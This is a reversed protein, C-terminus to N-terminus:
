EITIIMEDSVTTVATFNRFQTNAQSYCWFGYTGSNIKSSSTDTYEFIKYTDTIPYNGSANYNWRWVKIKNGDIAVRYHQWQKRAWTINKNITLKTSNSTLGTNSFQKNNARWLGNYSGGGIGKGSTDHKDLFLLYGSWYNKTTSPNFRIMVGMADDDSDTSTMEFELAMDKYAPIIEKGNEDFERYYYGTFDNTNVTEIITYVGSSNYGATTSGYWNADTATGIKGWTTLASQFATSNSDAKAGFNVKKVLTAESYDGGEEAYITLTVSGITQATMTITQNEKDFVAPAIADNGSVASIVKGEGEYDYKITITKGSTTYNEVELKPYLKNDVEVKQIAERYRQGEKAIVYITTKGVKKGPNIVIKDDVLEATAIESDEYEFEIQGDGDYSYTIEEKIESYATNATNKSITFTPDTKVKTAKLVSSAIVKDSQRIRAIVTIPELTYISNTYTEWTKGEDISYENIYGNPYKISITKDKSWDSNDVTILPFLEQNNVLKIENIELNSSGSYLEIISAKEPITFQTIEKIINTRSIENGNKDYIILKADNAVNATSYIRIRYNTLTSAVKFKRSTSKEIIDSTEVNGDYMKPLVIDEPIVRTFAKQTTLGSQNRVSKALIEGEYLEFSHKYVNWTKGNDISYYHETDDISTDFNITHIHSFKMGELQMIPYEGSSKIIPEKPIYLDLNYIKESTIIQANNKDLGEAYITLSYDNNRLNEVDSSKLSITGSYDTFEGSNGIRYKKILSEGYDIKVKIEDSFDTTLVNIKINMSDNVNKIEIVEIYENGAEDKAYITYKGNETITINGNNTINSGNEEFYSTDKIGKVYRITEINTDDEVSVNVTVTKKETELDGKITIVPPKSDVNDIIKTTKASENGHSDVGKAYVVSNSTIEFPKNYTLWGTDNGEEDIIRYFKEVLDNNYSIAVTQKQVILDEDSIVIKPARISDSGWRMFLNEGINEINPDLIYYHDKIIVDNGNDDKIIIGDSNEIDKANEYKVLLIGKEDYERWEGDTKWKYERENSLTLEPYNLRILYYSGKDLITYRPMLTINEILYSSIAENGVIDENYAYITCNENIVFPGDYNIWNGEDIKYKKVVANKSYEIDVTTQETANTPTHTIIPEDIGKTLFSIQKQNKGEGTESTVYAYITTNEDVIFPKTYKQYEDNNGIKYYATEVDSGYVLSVEVQGIITKINEEPPTVFIEVDLNDLKTSPTSTIIKLKEITTGNKNKAKAYITTSKTIKLVDKYDHYIYGDFSYKLTDYNDAEITVDVEDYLEDLYDNPTANIKIVPTNGNHINQIIQHSTKSKKGDEERIYYAYIISNKELKFPTTYNTWKNGDISYYIAEAKHKPNISIITYKTTGTKPNSTIQPGELIEPPEIIQVYASTYTTKNGYTAKAYITQGAKVNITKSYTTYNLGDISYELKDVKYYTSITAYVSHNKLAENSSLNITLGLNDRAIHQSDYSIQKTKDTNTKVAKAIILTDAKVSFKGSYKTYTKGSDISYEINESPYNTSITIYSKEIGNVETRSPEIYVRLSNKDEYIKNQGYAIVKEGNEMTFTARAIIISNPGLKFQGKYDSYAGGNISYEIKTAPYTTSISVNTKTSSDIVNDDLDVYVRYYEKELDVTDSGTIDYERISNEVVLQRKGAAYAYVIDGNNTEFPETYKKWSGNNIKYLKSTSENDYYIKINTKTKGKTPIIQVYLNGPDIETEKGSIYISIEKTKKRAILFDGNHDYVNIHYIIRATILTDGSVEFEEKYEKWNNNNIRYEVKDINNSHNIKVKTKEGNSLITKEPEIDLYYGDKSEIIQKNDLVYRIYVNDIDEIRVLIPGTYEKWKLEDGSAVENEKTLKWEWETSNEPYYLNLWIWGELDYEDSELVKIYINKSVTVSVGEKNTAKCIIKHEGAPMQKTNTYKKNGSTCVVEGTSKGFSYNSPLKYSSKYEIISPLNSLDIKPIDIKNNEVEQKQPTSEEEPKETLTEEEQKISTTIVKEFEIINGIKDIVKIKIKYNTNSELNNFERVNEGKEYDSGNISYYYGEIGSHKDSANVKIKISNNTITEELNGIIPSENDIFVEIVNSIKSYKNNVYKAKFYVYWKGTQSVETNKTFTDKWNCNKISKKNTICYEYNKIKDKNPEKVVYVIDSKVWDKGKKAITPYDDSFIRSITSSGILSVLIILLIIIIIPLMNFKSVNIIVKDNKNIETGIPPETSIVKGKGISLSIKEKIEKKYKIGNTNLKEKAEELKERRINPIKLKM